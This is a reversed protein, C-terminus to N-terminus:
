TCFKFCWHLWKHPYIPAYLMCPFTYIYVLVRAITGLYMCLTTVNCQHHSNVDVAISLSDPHQEAPSIHYNSFLAFTHGGIHPSM